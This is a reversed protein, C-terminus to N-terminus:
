TVGAVIAILLAGGLGASLGIILQKKSEPLSDFSDKADDIASEVPGTGTTASTPPVYSKPSGSSAAVKNMGSGFSQAVIVSGATTTEPVATIKSGSPLSTYYTSTKTEQITNQLSAPCNRMGASQCIINTITYVVPTSALTLATGARGDIRPPNTRKPGASSSTASGSGSTTATASVACASMMTTYFIQISTNPTPGWTDRNFEVFAGARAGLGFEYSEVVPLACDDSYSAGDRAKLVHSEDSPTVNTRFRALDAYVMASAGAGLEIDGLDASM